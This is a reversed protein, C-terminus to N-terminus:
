IPDPLLQDIPEWHKEKVMVFFCRGNSMEEWLKGIKRDEEAENWRDTGKNEVVLIRDDPLVCVFDPYFRDTSTQLSFSAGPKRVLNRVWFKIRGKQAENDLWRALALEEGNDLEGVQPYYHHQFEEPTPHERSPVYTDPNFTFQYSESVSVRKGRDEDFLFQQCATKAALKLLDKIRNELLQRLLFKQRNARALDFNELDLLRTLWKSVFAIMSAHTVTEIMRLNRCLWAALKTEDWHEPTYSLALDRELEKIFMRRLTGSEDLDIQDGEGTRGGLELTAIEDDNPLANYASLEYPYDIVEPDDFLQLEGNVWVALEPVCFPESRQSPTEFIKVAEPSRSTEVARAIVEKTDDFLVSDSLSEAEENSLPETIKLEKSKTDWSLKSKLQKSLKKLDPKEHLAVVVPRIEIRQSRKHIDLRQQEPRRASVFADAEKADFGADQVLRDRLSAATASFDRSVVYAYSQNLAVSKRRAAGPQRLIRGLLQEVATASRIEAMSVLIYAFPCDWGEALAQQTLVYKVPCKPSLIGEKFEKNLDQLGKEDGTAIIIEEEPINQNKILEERVRHVDLTDVNKRRKEAQILMIPRLYHAGERAEGQAIEDLQSRTDIAYNLCKQWDPETELQIPLKIMEMAKLEAASVSHLVNSPTKETDPTATLELIGSPRFGALTDFSLPTRSNHAEDVIIFPRRIRLMNAFSEVPEGPLLNAKQETTLGSFHPMLSGSQEYVKRLEKDKVQFAQRTAVIVVTSTEMTSRTVFRAEELDYVSVPGCERLALHYPHERNKLAGLTQERIANSPVLWLIVSHEQRLLVTNVLAVSKAAIFTKGGGTPVRLCFYPMDGDFGSLGNYPIGRGQLDYTTSYFARNADGDEHIREFYAKTSNLVDQQYSKTTFAKM